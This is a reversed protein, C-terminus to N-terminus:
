CRIEHCGCRQVSMSHLYFWCTTTMDQHSATGLPSKSVPERRASKPEPWASGGPLAPTESDSWSVGINMPYFTIREGTGWTRVGRFFVTDSACLLARVAGNPCAGRRTRRARLRTNRASRLGPLLDHLRRGPALRLAFVEVGTSPQTFACTNPSCLPPYESRAPLSETRPRPSLWRPPRPVPATANGRTPCSPARCTTGPPLQIRSFLSLARHAPIVPNLRELGLHALPLGAREPRFRPNPFSPDREGSLRASAHLRHGPTLRLAFVELGLLQAPVALRRQEGFLRLGVRAPATHRHPTHRATAASRLAFRRSVARLGYSISARYRGRM